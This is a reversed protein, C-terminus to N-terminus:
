AIVARMEHRWVRERSRRPSEHTNYDPWACVDPAWLSTPRSTEECRRENSARRKVGLLSTPRSVLGGRWVRM